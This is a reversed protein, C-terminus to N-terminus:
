YTSYLIFDEFSYPLITSFSNWGSSNKYVNVSNEPVYIRTTSFASGLCNDGYNPPIVAECNVAVLQVSSLANNSITQLGSPLVIRCFSLHPSGSFIDKGIETLASPLAVYRSSVADQTVTNSTYTVQKKNWLNKLSDCHSFAYDGISEICDPIIITSFASNAFAMEGIAVVKYIKEDYSVEKPISVYGTNTKDNNATVVVCDDRGDIVAYSISDVEFKSYGVVLFESESCSSVLLSYAMAIIYLVIKYVQKKNTLEM